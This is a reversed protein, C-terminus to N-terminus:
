EFGKAPKRRRGGPARSRLGPRHERGTTWWAAEPRERAGTLSRLPQVPERREIQQPSRFHEEKGDTRPKKELHRKIIHWHRARGSNEEHLVHSEESQFHGSHYPCSAAAHRGGGEPLAQRGRHPPPTDRNPDCRSRWWGRLGARRLGPAGGGHASRHEHPFPLCMRGDTLTPKM